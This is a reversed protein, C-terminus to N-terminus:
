IWRLVEVCCGAIGEAVSWSVNFRQLEQFEVLIFLLCSLCLYFWHSAVPQIIWPDLQPPSLIKQVQGARAQLGGLRRYLPYWIKRPTFRKPCPPSWACGELVSVTFPNTSCRQAEETGACDLWLTVTLKLCNLFNPISWDCESSVSSVTCTYYIPLMIEFINALVWDVARYPGGV